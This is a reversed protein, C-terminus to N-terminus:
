QIKLKDVTHNVRQQMKSDARFVGIENCVTLVQRALGPRKQELAYRYAAMLTDLMEMRGAKRSM